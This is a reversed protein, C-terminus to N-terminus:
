RDLYRAWVFCFGGFCALGVAVAALLYPGFPQHALQSLAQDLGGSKDPDHTVAAWVFLVGVVAFAAGRATFGVRALVTVVTGTKGTRGSPRIKKEWRDSLGTYASYGAFVLIGVGVLAVLVQGLPLSMLRATWGDTGSGGSGSGLAIRVSSVALVGYIVARGLSKLRALTRKAGEDKDRHGLAAEALQWLVLAVFGAALVWLLVKGMPAQAIQQLAGTNSVEGERSGFAVQLALWAVLLYVVGLSVLGMRVLRDFVTSQEASRAARGASSTNSVVGPTYGTGHSEQEDEDDDGYQDVQREHQEAAAAAADSLGTPVPTDYRAM